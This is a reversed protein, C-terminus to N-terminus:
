RHTSLVSGDLAVEEANSGPIRNDGPMPTTYRIRANGPMVVIEKVFTNVFARRETIQSKALLLRMDQAYAVITAVDNLVATPACNVKVIGDTSILPLPAVLPGEGGELREERRGGTSAPAPFRIVFM